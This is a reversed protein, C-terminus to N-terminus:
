PSGLLCEGLMALFKDPLKRVRGMLGDLDKADVNGFYDREVLEILQDETLTTM